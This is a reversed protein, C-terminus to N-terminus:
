DEDPLEFPSSEADRRRHEELMSDYGSLDLELALRALSPDFQSGANSEIEQMVRSRDLAQRYSRDSSMADFADAVALVRGLMPIAEGSLGDPYGLGDWREHHHRVGPMLDALPGLDKLIACGVTPHRKLQAYEENTLRGRKRLVRDRVGIKGIDHVLGALRVRELQAEPFGAARALMTGLLAVRESHGHTYEDKADIAATLAQLTGWVLAKQEQFMAVNQMFAGMGEGFACVLQSDVSTIEPDHSSKQGTVLAGITEDRSRVPALLRHGPHEVGALVGPLLHPASAAMDLERM